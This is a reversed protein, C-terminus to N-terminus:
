PETEWGFDLTGPEFNDDSGFESSPVKFKSGGGSGPGTDVPTSVLTLFNAEMDLVRKGAEEGFSLAEPPKSDGSKKSFDIKRTSPREHHEEGSALQGGVFVGGQDSREGHAFAIKWACSTKLGASTTIM